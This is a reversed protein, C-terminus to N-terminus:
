LDAALRSEIAECVEEAFEPHLEVTREHAGTYRSRISRGAAFSPRGPPRFYEVGITGLGPIEITALALKSGYSVAEFETITFTAPAEVGGDCNADESGRGGEVSATTKM